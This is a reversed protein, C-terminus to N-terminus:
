AGARRGRRCLSVIGVIALVPVWIPSLAAAVALAVGLAAVALSLGVALAALLAAGLVCGLALTVPLLKLAVLVLVAVLLVRLFTKMGWSGPERRFTEAPLAVVFYVLYVFFGSSPNHLFEKTHKTYKTTVL